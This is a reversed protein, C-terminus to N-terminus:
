PWIEPPEAIETESHIGDLEARSSIPERENKSSILEVADKLCFNWQNKPDPFLEPAM